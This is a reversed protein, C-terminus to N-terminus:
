LILSILDSDIMSLRPSSTAFNYLYQNDRTRVNRYSPDEKYFHPIHSKSVKLPRAWPWEALFHQLFIQVQDMKGHKIESYNLSLMVVFQQCKKTSLIEVYWQLLGEWLSKGGTCM